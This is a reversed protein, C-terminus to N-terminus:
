STRIFRKAFELPLMLADKKLTFTIDPHAGYVKFQEELGATNFPACILHAGHTTFYYFPIFTVSQNHARCLAWIENSLYMTAQYIESPDVGPGDIDILFLKSQRSEPKMLCSVMENHINAYFFPKEKEPIDIM